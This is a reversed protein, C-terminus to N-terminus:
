GLAVLAYYTISLVKGVLYDSLRYMTVSINEAEYSYINSCFKISDTMSLFINEPIKM